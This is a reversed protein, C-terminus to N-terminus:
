SYFEENLYNTNLCDNLSRSLLIEIKGRSEGPPPPSPRDWRGRLWGSGGWGFGKNWDPIGWFRM